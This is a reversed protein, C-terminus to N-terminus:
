VDRKTGAAQLRLILRTIFSAGFVLLAGFIFSIISDVVISFSFSDDTNRLWRAVSWGFDLVSWAMFVIGLGSLTMAIADKYRWMGGSTIPGENPVAKTALWPAKWWLLGLFGLFLLWNLLRDTSDFLNIRNIEFFFYIPSTNAIEKIGLWVAIVRFALAALERKTMGQRAALTNVIKLGCEPCSGSRPLGRLNYGCALCMLDQALMHADENDPQAHPESESM